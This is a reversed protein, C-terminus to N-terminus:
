SLINTFKMLLLMYSQLLWSIVGTKIAKGVYGYISAYILIALSGFLIIHAAKRIKRQLFMSQMNTTDLAEEEDLINTRDLLWASDQISLDGPRSSFVFIVTMLLLTIVWIIRRTLM